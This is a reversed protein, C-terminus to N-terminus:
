PRLPPNDFCTVHSQVYGGVAVDNVQTLYGTPLSTPVNAGTSTGTFSLLANEDINITSLGNVPSDRIVVQLLFLLIM